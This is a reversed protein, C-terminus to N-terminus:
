DIGERREVAEVDAIHSLADEKVTETNIFSDASSPSL